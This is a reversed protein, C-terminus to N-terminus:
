SRSGGDALQSELELIRANAQVLAEGLELNAKLFRQGDKELLRFREDYPAVLEEKGFVEDRHQGLAAILLDLTSRQGFRLVIPHPAGTVRQVLWVESPKADIPTPAGDEPAAAFSEVKFGVVPFITAEPNVRAARRRAKAKSEKGM